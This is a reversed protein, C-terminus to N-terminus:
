NDKINLYEVLEKFLFEDICYYNTQGPGFNFVVANYPKGAFLAEENNKTFWEKKVSISTSDTMKTKCELLWKDLTVDGPKFTTAGSNPQRTGNLSKAVQDEQKKSFYRTPKKEDKNVAINKILGM